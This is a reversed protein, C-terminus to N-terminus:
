NVGSLWFGLGVRAFGFCAGVWGVIYVTGVVVSRYGGIRVCCEGEGGGGM